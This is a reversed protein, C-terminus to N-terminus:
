VSQVLAWAGRPDLDKALAYAAQRYETEYRNAYDGTMEGSEDFVWIQDTNATKDIICYPM